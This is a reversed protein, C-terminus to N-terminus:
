DKKIKTALLSFKFILKNQYFFNRTVQLIDHERAQVCQFRIEALNASNQLGQYSICSQFNRLTTIVFFYLHDFTLTIFYFDLRSKPRCIILLKDALAFLIKMNFDYDRHPIEIYINFGLKEKKSIKITMRINSLKFLHRWRCTFIKIAFSKTLFKPKLSYNPQRYITEMSVSLNVDIKKEM